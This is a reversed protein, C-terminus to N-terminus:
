IRIPQIITPVKCTLSPLKHKIIIIIIRVNAYRLIFIRLHALFIRLHASTYRFGHNWTLIFV